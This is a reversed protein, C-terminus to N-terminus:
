PVAASYHIANFLLKFTNHPQARFQPRFGFLIVRGKRYTVEAAAIRDRLHEEGRMWGSQLVDRGPYRAIVKLNTYSFGPANEFASNNEFVATAESPMGYAVAHHRDVLIKLLSGPCFFRARDLGDLANRLPLAFTRVAFETSDGMAILTGGDSVFDRLAERGKEGIGGRFEPPTSEWDNGKVLRDDARDGPLIIVDWLERLKGAHVDADHVPTFAFEYQELLWRTWGEDISATWPRYLAVRPKALRLARGRPPEDLAVGSLGLEEVNRRIEDGSGAPQKVWLSGPPFTRGGAETEETLWAIDAGAKLFRNTAIVGNNPEPSILFGSRAPGAALEGRPLPIADLRELRAQFSDKVRVAEVGMQLPLTWATVDYPEDGLSGNPPLGLDPHEQRELLDKVYARFPQAMPIVFSGAPYEKEGARFPEAARQVEIGAYHLAEILRHMAGPDRQGAPFVYAYPNGKQGEEMARRGMHIQNEILRERRGAATELLSNSIVLEVDIIDRLTWKGGLWPRPYSSRPTVDAPPPAPATPDATRERFWDIRSRRSSSPQGLKAKEQYVPTALQASAVETLLGVSNHFWAGRLFGGQWWATYRESHGVGDFGADHLAGFMSLGFVGAEAWVVPDVNPNIPDDFPPVFVRMGENGQQHQDLYVQPFWDQFLLKNVYRSEVQTMMFADRNNDHGVYPHYLWPLGSWVQKTGRVRNNWDTVMIQGDPNFSPILLLVVNDLVNRMWRSDETAMRHALELAMQSSGIETAHINCTLLVVAPSNAALQQMDSESLENPHAFKWQNARIEALRSLNRPSSITALLFPNGNTSKGLEEVRVRDSSEAVLRFYAVIKEWRVLNGDSGIPFGAFASPTPLTSSAAPARATFVLVLALLLICAPKRLPSAMPNGM